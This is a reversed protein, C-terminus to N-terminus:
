KTLKRIVRALNLSSITTGGFILIRLAAAVNTDFIIQYHGTLASIAFALTALVATSEFFLNVAMANSVDKYQTKNIMFQFCLRSSLYLALMGIVIVLFETSLIVENM